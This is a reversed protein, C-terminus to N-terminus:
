MLRRRWTVREWYEWWLSCMREGRTTVWKWVRFRHLSSREKKRLKIIKENAAQLSEKIEPDNIQSLMEAYKEQGIENIGSIANKAETLSVKTNIIYDRLSSEASANNKTGSITLLDSMIFVVRKQLVILVILNGAMLINIWNWFGYQFSGLVIAGSNILVATLFIIRGYM